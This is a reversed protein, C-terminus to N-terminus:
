PSRPTLRAPAAHRGRELYERRGSTAGSRSGRAAVRLEAAHLEAAQRMEARTTAGSILALAFRM